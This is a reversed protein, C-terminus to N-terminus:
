KFRFEAVLNLHDSPFQVSPLRDEGIQEETPMDLTTITELESSHFVYDLIHKQEGSERIKWTTYEVNETGSIEYSSQLPIKESQTMTKFIPESPEANFDGTIIVPRGCRFSELWELIDKGQENRLTSLLAGSRAKLHTTAVCIENGSETEKLNFGMLVQNSQVKWVELVKSSESLLDFRETKYFIACGDPGNNANLYICPSDPKPVFRGAYGVSGLSMELLKFHDVEQLCVIDPDYRIIEEIMRWRRTTWDLAAPNCRVFKDNETGITQSLQNWQLVKFTALQNADGTKMRINRTFCKTPNCGEKECRELLEDKTTQPFELDDDQNDSGAVKPVSTFSGMRVLYMLLQKPPVYNQDSGGSLKRLQNKIDLNKIIKSSAAAAKMEAIALSEKLAALDFPANKVSNTSHKREKSYESVETKKNSVQSMKTTVELWSSSERCHEALLIYTSAKQELDLRTRRNKTCAVM